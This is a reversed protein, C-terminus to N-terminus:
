SRDAEAALAESAAIFCEIPVRTIGAGARGRGIERHALGNNIVPAIGSRAIRHVDIGVPTGRHDENPLLFRSSTAATISRMEEVIEVGQAATGGVFSMIAPAASMAFAGFGATEAIMSDGMTPNVDKLALGPILQPTGVPSPATFWRDGTGSVRIGFQRGNASMATVVPSGAVDAASLTLAKAMTIAFPLAFHGNGAIVSMTEAADDRSVERVLTPALLNLLNATTAVLRNHCDDGRRLGEAVLAVLDIPESAQIAADLAPAMVAAIWRLRDITAADFSGYRVAGGTGENLPSFTRRDGSAAVVVPMNPTIVGAMAGLAGADHCPSITLEGSDIIAAADHEDQAEGEFLLGGILAGRMPGTVDAVDIPPGAHLFHRSGVIDTVDGARSIGALEVTTTNLAKVSATTAHDSEQEGTQGPANDATSSPSM